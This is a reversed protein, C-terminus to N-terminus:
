TNSVTINAELSGAELVALSILHEVAHDKLARLRTDMRCTRSESITLSSPTIIYKTNVNM